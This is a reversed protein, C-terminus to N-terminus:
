RYRILNFIAIVWWFVVDILARLPNKRETDDLWVFLGIPICTGFWVLLLAYIYRMIM